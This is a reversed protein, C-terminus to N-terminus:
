GSLVESVVFPTGQQCTTMMGQEVRGRVTVTAGVAFSDRNIGPGPLLLYNNLLRCGSEVGEAVQGTLTMEAGPSPKGTARGFPKGSSTPSPM